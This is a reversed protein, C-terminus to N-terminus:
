AAGSITHVFHDWARAINELPHQQKPQVPRRYIVRAKPPCLKKLREFCAAFRSYATPDDTIIVNEQNHRNAKDTWNFSGNWLKNDFLAFKHHMIPGSFFARTPSAPKPPEFVYLTMGSAELTKGKGYSSEYSITDIVVQVDVKREKAKILANAINKDTLMYVAAYIKYKAENIMCILRETPRDDPSFLVETYAALSNIVMCTLILAAALRLMKM